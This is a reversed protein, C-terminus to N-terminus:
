LVNVFGILVGLVGGIWVLANLEKKSIDMILKEVYAVDFENIKQEVINAVDLREIFPTAKKQLLQVYLEWIKDKIQEKKQWLLIGAEKM